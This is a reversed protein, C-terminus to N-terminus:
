LSFPIVGHFARVGGGAFGDSALVQGAGQVRQVVEHLACVSFAGVTGVDNQVGQLLRVGRSIHLKEGCGGSHDSAGLVDAGCSGGGGVFAGLLLGFPFAM